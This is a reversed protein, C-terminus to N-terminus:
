RSKGARSLSKKIENRTDLLEITRDNVALVKWPVTGNLTSGVTVLLPRKTPDKLTIVAQTGIRGSYVFTEGPDPSPLMQFTVPGSWLQVPQSASKVTIQIGGPSAIMSPPITARIQNASLRQSPVPQGNFFVQSDGPFVSGSLMVPVARGTGAIVSSPSVSGLNITPPKEKVIAPPKPPIVPPPPPYDFINRSGRVDGAAPVDYIPLEAIPGFGQTDAVRVNEPSAGEKAIQTNRVRGDKARQPPPAPKSAPWFNWALIIAMFAVLGGLVYLKRRDSASLRPAAAKAM